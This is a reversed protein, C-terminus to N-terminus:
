RRKGSRRLTRAFRRLKTYLPARFAVTDAVARDFSVWRAARFEGPPLKELPVRVAGTEFFFWYQVQGM